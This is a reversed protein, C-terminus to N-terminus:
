VVSKRDAVSYKFSFEFTGPYDKFADLIESQATWHFRHIMGFERKPNEKLADRVGEGYTDWLWREKEKSDMKEPMGEGATIGMGALLPYTTVMERVSARFYKKTIENGLDNSIGHKGEAGFTFVNWTFFYVGIGRDAAQQMVWRWFEIKEDITMRKVVEHDALMAPRVMDNGAFSFTDDLKARTRWVDNLAVEPFEPVKVLSPFPHLSWLSLVNYRHRAMADLFATWFQREWMEPINAQAADSCDTYSPTRLDLPINFKIGRQAIHPKHDSDKLTDFMGLRIAEAVDLGGYMAGAADAGRVTILRRAGESKVDIRYSQPDAKGDKEVSLSVRTAQSDDGLTMGKAAAERRIEEAAFRGPGGTAPDNSLVLSAALATGVLLHATFFTFLLLGWRQGRMVTGPSAVPASAPPSMKM